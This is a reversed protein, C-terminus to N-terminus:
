DGTRVFAAKVTYGARPYPRVLLTFRNRMNDFQYVSSWNIFPLREIVIDPFDCELRFFNSDFSWFGNAKQFVEEDNQRTRITVICTGNSVLILEYTDSITEGYDKYSIRGQWRSGSFSDVSQSFSFATTFFFIFFVFIIPKM